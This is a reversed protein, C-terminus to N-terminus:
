PLAADLRRFSGLTAPASPYCYSCPTTATVKRAHLPRSGSGHYETTDSPPLRTRARAQVDWDTKIMKEESLVHHNSTRSIGGRKTGRAHALLDRLLLQLRHSAPTGDLSNSILSHEHPHFPSPALPPLSPVGPEGDLTGLSLHTHKM